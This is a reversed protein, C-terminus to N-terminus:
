PPSSIGFGIGRERLALDAGARNWCPPVARRTFLKSRVFEEMIKETIPIIVKADIGKPLVTDLVAIREQAGVAAISFALAMVCCARKIM